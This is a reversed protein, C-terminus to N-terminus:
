VVALVGAGAEGPLGVEKNPLSQFPSCRGPIRKMVLLLALQMRTELARSIGVNSIMYLFCITRTNLKILHRSQNM